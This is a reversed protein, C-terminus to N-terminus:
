RRLLGDEERLSGESHLLRNDRSSRVLVCLTHRGFREFSFRITKSAVFRILEISASETNRATDREFFSLRKM